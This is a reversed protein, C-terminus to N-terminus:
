NGNEYVAYTGRGAFGLQQCVVFADRTDWDDDCVAGWFGHYCVEVRGMVESAGGVLRVEGHSCGAAEASLFFYTLITGGCYQDRYTELVYCNRISDGLISFLSEM